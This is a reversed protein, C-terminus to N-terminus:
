DAVSGFGYRFWVTNYRDGITCSNAVREKDISKLGPIRCITFGIGGDSRRYGYGYLHNIRTCGDHNNLKRLRNIIYFSM